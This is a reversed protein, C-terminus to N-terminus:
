NVTFGINDIYFTNGPTGTPDSLTFKYVNTRQSHLTESPVNQAPYVTYTGALQNTNQTGGLYAQSSSGTGPTLGNGTLFSSGTISIGSLLQTVTLTNGSISGIFSGVGMELSKGTNFSGDLNVFPIKYTAWVGPQSQPGFSADSGGLIVTAASYNDGTTIRSVIDLTWTQGARTPKLDITMYNFGGVEMAWTTPSMNHLFPQGSYPQFYNGGGVVTIAIDTPSGAQPSGSTYATNITVTNGSYNNSALTWADYGQHYAWASCQTQQASEVGGVVASVTYKYITAAVFPYPGPGPTTVNSAAQDTYTTVNTSDYRVGNRYINYSSAGAVADWSLVADNTGQNILQFNQPM